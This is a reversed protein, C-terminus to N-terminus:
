DYVLTDWQFQNGIRTLHRIVERVTATVQSVSPRTPLQGLPLTDITAVSSVSNLANIISNLTRILDGSVRGVSAELGTATSLTNLSSTLAALKTRVRDNTDTRSISEQFPFLPRPLTNGSEILTNLTEFIPLNFDIPTQTLEDEDDDGQSEDNAIEEEGFM